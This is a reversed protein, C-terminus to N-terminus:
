KRKFNKAEVYFELTGVLLSEVSQCEPTSVLTRPSALSACLLLFVSFFRILFFFRLLSSINKELKPNIGIIKKLM